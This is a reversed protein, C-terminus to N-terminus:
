DELCVPQRRIFISNYKRIAVDVKSIGNTTKTTAIPLGTNPDTIVATITIPRNSNRDIAIVLGILNSKAVANKSLTGGKTSSANPNTEIWSKAAYQPSINSPVSERISTDTLVPRSSPHTVPNAAPRYRNTGPVVNM